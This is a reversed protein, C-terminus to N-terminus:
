VLDGLLMRVLDYAADISNQFSFTTAEGDMSDGMMDAMNESQRILSQKSTGSPVDDVITDHSQAEAFNSSSCSSMSIVMWGVLWSRWQLSM